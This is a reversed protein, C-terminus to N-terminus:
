SFGGVKSTGPGEAAGASAGRAGAARDDGAAGASPRGAGTAPGAGAPRTLDFISGVNVM